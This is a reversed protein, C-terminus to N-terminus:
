KCTYSRWGVLFQSYTFRLEVCQHLARANHITRMITNNLVIATTCATNTLTTAAEIKVGSGGFRDRPGQGEGSKFASRTDTGLQAKAREYVAKRQQLILVDAGAHRQAPTVYRIGSHQHRHNYWEVFEAMFARTAAIDAFRGPYAPAYKLTRFFSEIYPNDDSVAPRSFSPIIGLKQMTALMTAGKMPGGNDAHVTLTDPTIGESAVIDQLLVASYTACESEYVQWGVIKRSFVDIFLYLYCYKGVISLPLYTIDWSYIRNPATATVPSPASYRKPRSAHRHTLQKAEKLVRYLSSESAIYQGTDALKPVIQSPPLDAYEPM